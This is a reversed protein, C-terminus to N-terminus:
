GGIDLSVQQLVPCTYGLFLCLHGLFCTIGQVLLSQEKILPGLALDQLDTNVPCVRLNKLVTNCPLSELEANIYIRNSM